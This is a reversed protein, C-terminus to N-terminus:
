HSTRCGSADPADAHLLWRDESATLTITSCAHTSLVTGHRAYMDIAQQTPHGYSNDAGASVLAIPAAVADTLTREQTASGHHPIVVIDIDGPDLEGRQQLTLALGFQGATELDGTTLITGVPTTILLSMSMDNVYPGSEDLPAVGHDSYPWLAEWSVTGDVSEGAQGTAVRLVPVDHDAALAELAHRAVPIVNIDPIWVQGVEVQGIVGATGGVHDAHLHSILVAEVETVDHLDLCAALLEPDPGTDIVLARQGGNDAYGTHVLIATGQGVDCAAVHWIDRQPETVLVAIQYGGWSLGSTVIVAGSMCALVKVRRRAQKWRVEARAIRDSRRPSGPLGFGMEQREKLMHDQILVTGAALLSILALICAGRAAPWWTVSAGPMGAFTEAVTTIWQTCFGALTTLIQAAGAHLPAICLALIGLVTAPPVAPAALVNAPISYVTVHPELLIIIPGCALQAATPVAIMLALWQPLRHMLRTLPGTLVIIGATAAVSLVFGYARALWPDILLLGIVTAALAPIGQSPRRLCLATLAVAGMGAARLVSPEPRVIVVFMAMATAIVVVLLPRPFRAASFVFLLATSMIAFHAGSVATIHTLSTLLMADSIDDPLDTVDGITIGPVLGRGQPSLHASAAKLGDRLNTVSATFAPPKAAVIPTPDALFLTTQGDVPDLPLAAATFSVRQGMAVCGWTVEEDVVQDRECGPPSGTGVEGGSAEPAKGAVADHGGPEEPQNAVVAATAGTWMRGQQDTITADTVSLWWRSQGRLASGAVPKVDANITATVMLQGPASEMDPVWGPHRVEAHLAGVCGVVLGVGSAMLAAGSWATFREPTWRRTVVTALLILASGIIALRTPEHSFGRGTTVVMSALWACLAPIALRLDYRSSGNM